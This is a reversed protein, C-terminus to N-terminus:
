PMFFCTCLFVEQIGVNLEVHQKSLKCCLQVIAFIVACYAKYVPARFIRLVGQCHRVVGVAVIGLM